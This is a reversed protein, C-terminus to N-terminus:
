GTFQYTFPVVMAGIFYPGRDSRDDTFPDSPVKTVVGSFKQDLFLSRLEEGWERIRTVGSNAEVAMVIRFAGDEWYHRQGTAVRRSSSAPFQLMLFPSGDAPVISEMNETFVDCHLWAARLRAEVAEEALKHAM